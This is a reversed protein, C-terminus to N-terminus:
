CASSSTRRERAAAPLGVCEGAVHSAAAVAAVNLDGVPRDGVLVLAARAALVGDHEPPLLPLLRQRVVGFPPDSRM